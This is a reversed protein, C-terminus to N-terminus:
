KKRSPPALMGILKNIERKTLARKPIIDFEAITIFFTDHLMQKNACPPLDREGKSIENVHSINLKTNCRLNLNNVAKTLTGVNLKIQKWQTILNHKM